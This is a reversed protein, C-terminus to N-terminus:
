DIWVWVFSALEVQLLGWVHGSIGGSDSGVVLAGQPIVATDLTAVTAVSGVDPLWGSVPATELSVGM